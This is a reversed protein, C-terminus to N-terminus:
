QDDQLYAFFEPLWARLAVMRRGHGSCYELGNALRLTVPERCFNGSIPWVCGRDGLSAV